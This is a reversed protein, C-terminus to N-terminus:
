ITPESWLISMERQRGYLVILPLSSGNIQYSQAAVSIREMSNCHANTHLLETLHWKVEWLVIKQFQFQNSLKPERIRLWIEIFKCLADAIKFGHMSFLFCCLFSFEFRMKASIVYYMSSNEPRIFDFWSIHYCKYVKCCSNEISQYISYKYYPIENLEVNIKIICDMINSTFSWITNDLDSHWLIEVVLEFM